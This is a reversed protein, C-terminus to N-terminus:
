APSQESLYTRLAEITEIGSVRLARLNEEVRDPHGESLTCEIGAAIVTLRKAGVMASSTRISLVSDRAHLVDSHLISQELAAIREPWRECFSHLFARTAALDGNLAASLREIEAHELLPHDTPDVCM